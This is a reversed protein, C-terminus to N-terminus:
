KVIAQSSEGATNNSKNGQRSFVGSPYRYTCIDVNFHGCANRGTIGTKYMNERKGIYKNFGYTESILSGWPVCIFQHM